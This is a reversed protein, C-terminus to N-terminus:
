TLLFTSIILVNLCVAIVFTALASLTFSSGIYKIVRNGRNIISLFVHM